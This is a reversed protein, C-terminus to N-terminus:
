TTQRCHTERTLSVLVVSLVGWVLMLMFGQRYANIDYIRAGAQMAGTWYRDLMWGVAPQLIMGGMMVGMNAIGSVTGALRLPVSEKAFAFGIVMSGASFGILALVAALAAIPLGPVLVILAWGAASVIAGGLYLPKRRGVRDSLAGLLPSGVAWAILFASTMAAAQTTTLGYQSALYPVGWLGAFTLVPGAVGGPILFLLWTNRYRLVELLGAIVGPHAARDRHIAPAYSAFGREAPDDRVVRWILVTALLTLVSTAAMVTRWGFESMLLRLPVGGAVGGIIGCLLALGGALAFQRPAMWHSALKLMCVFAVAVSGGILLRGMSAWFISPALAFSLSGITAVLAGATLLRRPGWRDAIIGTPIQMAVYSYFYFASLNGLSSATISFDRMLESTMVAPAVRQYFAILYLLAGLSWVTWALKAPPFRSSNLHSDIGNLTVSINANPWSLGDNRRSGSDLIDLSFAM